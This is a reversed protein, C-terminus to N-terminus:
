ATAASRAVMKALGAELYGPFADEFVGALNSTCQAVLKASLPFGGRRAVVLAHRVLLEALMFYVRQREVVALEALKSARMFTEVSGWSVATGVLKRVITIGIVGGDSAGIRRVLERHVAAAWMDVDRDAKRETLQQELLLQDLLEKRDKPSLKLIQEALEGAERAHTRAQVHASRESVVSVVNTTTTDERLTHTRHPPTPTSSNGNGVADAVAGLRYAPRATVIPRRTAM